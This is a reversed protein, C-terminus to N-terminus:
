TSIYLHVNWVEVLIKEANTPTQVGALPRNYLGMDRDKQIDKSGQM